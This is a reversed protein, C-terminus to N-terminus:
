WVLATVTSLMLIYASGIGFGNLIVLGLNYIALMGVFSSREMFAKNEDKIFGSLFLQVLLSALIAPPTYLPIPLWEHTYWSMGKNLVESMFLAVLNSSILSAILGLLVGVMSLTTAKLSQFHSEAKVTTHLIIQGFVSIGMSLTKFADRSILIFFRGLLAFYIPIPKNTKSEISKVQSLKSEPNIVLEKVIALVNEGFHQTVGKQVYEPIDKRTHSSSRFLSPFSILFRYLRM